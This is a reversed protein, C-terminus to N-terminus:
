ASISLPRRAPQQAPTAAPTAAGSAAPSAASSGPTGPSGGTAGGTSATREKAIKEMLLVWTEREYELIDIVQDLKEVSKEFGAETITIIMWTYLGSQRACLEPAIEPRLGNLLELIIDKSQSLNTYVGEWDKNLLSRRGDRLFRLGGDILLLKLEEPSATLVKTKFYPNNVDIAMAHQSDAPPTCPKISCSSM